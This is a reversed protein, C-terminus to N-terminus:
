LDWTKPDAPKKKRPKPEPVPAPPQEPKAAKAPKARVVPPEDSGDDRIDAVTEADAAAAKGGGGEGKARLVVKIAVEGFPFADRLCKTLYRVYTDDFLEPGNTFLVVTPPRVGIQTAYFIKAPRNTRVPPTNAEVAQRVVRNLDGTSVRTGAQKHLQIALQLLRLVNKGKKATIFAIPVHDLMPFVKRVYEAMKETPLVDKLLDWKNVVFIAPTHNELIYGALQKDVRGIRHRADFFHLVVDARRISREARHLSYFEIDNQLTTRKRVGATDIAVFEKGDREFRVDISDRTTGPVESVIVRDIGALSNIFTSKGVNRRGVIALKLAPDAPPLDGADPPLKDVIAQFLDDKGLKQEASVPIPNGYGLRGFDGSLSALKDTDAKNAVFIVPKNIARLRRAVEEDLPVGGDRVDVVFLVVAAADLAHQIQQEVDATLDDVDQIGMGGTDVLEFYRDGAEVVTTVRDRTVGATPDVISIRRGALWNFLASKGVNPRGVIAVIPLAM